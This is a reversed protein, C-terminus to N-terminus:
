NGGKLIEFADFAAKIAKRYGNCTLTAGSIASVDTYNDSVKGTYQTGLEGEAGLTESSQICKAGTIKGNGDIGCMIVLGSKYGTVTMQFVYGGSAAKYAATIEEPLGTTDIKDFSEGEPMVELLADQAKQEQNAKIIPDAVMNIASLLLAACLCIISLVITPMLKSKVM